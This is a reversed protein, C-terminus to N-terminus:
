EKVLNRTKQAKVVSNKKLKRSRLKITRTVHNIPKSICQATLLNFTLLIRKNKRGSTCKQSSLRLGTFYRNFSKSLTNKRSIEHKVTINVRNKVESNIFFCVVSGRSRFGVLLMVKKCSFVSFSLSLYLCLTVSIVTQCISSFSEM